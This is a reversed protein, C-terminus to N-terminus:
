LVWSWWGQSNQPYQKTSITRGIPNYVVEAGATRIRVGGNPDGYETWHNATLM